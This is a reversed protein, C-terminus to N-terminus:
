CLNGTGPYGQEWGGISSGVCSMRYFKGEHMYFVTGRSVEEAGQAVAADHKAASVKSNSKHMTGNPSIMIAEGEGLTMASEEAFVPLAVVVAGAIAFMAIKNMDM